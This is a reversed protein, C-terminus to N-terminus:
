FFLNKAADIAKRVNEDDKFKRLLAEEDTKLSDCRLETIAKRIEERREANYPEEGSWHNCDVIRDVLDIVPTPQGAKLTALKDEAAFAVVSLALLM